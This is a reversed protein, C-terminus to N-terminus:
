QGNFALKQTYDEPIGLFTLISTMNGYSMHHDAQKKVIEKAQFAIGMGAKALMKLDNAGDGIAVVQELSIGDQQALFDLLHAKQDADVIPGTLKGTLKGESDFELTNAFSYDLGLKAKFHDTFFNFGGSIVGVKFGLSKVIKIFPEVGPTLPIEDLLRDMHHRQLGKLMSVRKELSQTFDLKGNMAEETIKKVEERADCLGALEEIVERQILTSDMDFIILRKNFRFVNDRVIALDVKHRYAIELIDEKIKPFDIKENTVMKLDLSSLVNKYSRNEIDLINIGKDACYHTIEAIFTANIGEPQVCSIIFLDHYKFDIKSTDILQFDCNMGLKKAEFLLDKMIPHDESDNDILISLSLLGHTVSQGMDSIVIGAESILKTLAATIGPKDTGSIKVLIQQDSM